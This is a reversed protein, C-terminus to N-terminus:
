KGEKGEKGEHRDEKSEFFPNARNGSTGGHMSKGRLTHEFADLYTETLPAQLCTSVHGVRPACHGQYSDKTMFRRWVVPDPESGLVAEDIDLALVDMPANAETTTASGSKGGVFFIRQRDGKDVRM